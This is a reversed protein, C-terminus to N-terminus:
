ESTEFVLLLLWARYCSLGLVTMILEEGSAVPVLLGNRGCSAGSRRSQALGTVVLEV